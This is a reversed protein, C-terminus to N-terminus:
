DSQSQAAISNIPLLEGKAGVEDISYQVAVSNPPADTVKVRHDLSSWTRKQRKESM